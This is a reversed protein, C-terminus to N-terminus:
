SILSCQLEFKLDVVLTLVTSIGWKGSDVWKHWQFMSIEWYYGSLRVVILVWHSLINPLQGNSLVDWVVFGITRVYSILSFCYNLPFIIRKNEYEWESRYIGGFSICYSYYWLTFTSRKMSSSRYFYSIIYINSNLVSNYNVAWM